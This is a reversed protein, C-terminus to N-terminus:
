ALSGGGAATLLGRLEDLSVTRSTLTNARADRLLHFREESAGALLTVAAKGPHACGKSCGSVHLVGEGGWYPALSAAAAAVDVATRACGSGGVCAAVRLRPDRADVMFGARGARDSLARGRAPPIGSLVFARQVDHVSLRSRGAGLEEVLEAVALLAPVEARGFPVGLGFQDFSLPGVANAIATAPERVGWSRAGTCLGAAALVADVGVEAILDALRRLELPSASALQVFARTIAAVAALPDEGDVAIDGASSGDEARLGIWTGSGRVHVCLDAIACDGDGSTVAICFKAPLAALTTASELWSELRTAFAESGATQAALMLVSRRREAGADASALGSESMVEAFARASAPSLGRVQLNGRNTLLLRGSGHAAAAAAIRRLELASWGRVRPKVTAILGDAAAMPEFVTPCWGRVSPMSASM